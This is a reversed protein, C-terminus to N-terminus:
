NSFSALLEETNKAHKEKLNKWMQGTALVQPDNSAFNYAEGYVADERQHQEEALKSQEQQLKQIQERIAKIKPTIEERIEKVREECNLTKFAERKVQEYREWHYSRVPNLKDLHEKELKRVKAKQAKTLNEM